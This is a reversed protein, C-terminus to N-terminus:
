PLETEKIKVEKTLKYTQSKRGKSYHLLRHCNACLAAVNLQTDEGNKSLPILHHVELYFENNEKKFPAERKCLECFGKSRKLAYVVVDPNRIFRETYVKHKNKPMKKEKIRKRLITFPLKKSRNVKKREASELKEQSIYDGERYNRWRNLRDDISNLKFTNKYDTSYLQIKTGKKIKTNKRDSNNIVDLIKKYLHSFRIIKKDALLPHKNAIKNLVSDEKNGKVISNLEHPYNQRSIGVIANSKGVLIVIPKRQRKIDAFIKENGLSLPFSGAQLYGDQSADDLNWDLVLNEKKAGMEVLSIRKTLTQKM